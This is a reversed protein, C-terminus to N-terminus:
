GRSRSGRLESRSSCSREAMSASAGSVMASTSFPRATPARPLVGAFRRRERLQWRLEGLTLCARAEGTHLHLPVCLLVDAPLVDAFLFGRPEPQRIPPTPTSACSSCTLILAAIAPRTM